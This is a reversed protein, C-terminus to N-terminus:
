PAGALRRFFRHFISHNMSDDSSQTERVHRQSRAIAVIDARTFRGSASTWSDEVPPTEILELEPAALRTLQEDSINTTFVGTATQWEWISRGDDSFVARGSKRKTANVTEDSLRNSM